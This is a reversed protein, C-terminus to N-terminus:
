LLVHVKQQLHDLIYFPFTSVGKMKYNASNAYNMIFVVGSAIQCFKGIILKDGYFDYQSIVSRM